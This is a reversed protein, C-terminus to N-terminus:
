QPKKVPTEEVVVEDDDLVKVETGYKNYNRFRIQNRSEFLESRHRSTLRVDSSIPLLYKTGAIEVWDYDIERSAARIPFDEPIETAEQEVRLIRGTERDVWLKGRYGSITSQPILDVSTIVQKSNLCKVAYEYVITRRNRLTDTDIAKFEAQSEPKFISSLVTVFEGASTTGGVKMYNREGKDEPQPAGNIALVRYDEGKDASYSVAVTLKDSSQFNNTKAYAYSRAVLQKVVFDPMEDLAALTAARAKTLLESTEKEAPLATAAPNSRRRAAEELTRALVQDGSKSQVLSRLPETMTFGIGRTRIQEVLWDRRAPNRQLEYLTKVFEAQSVPQQPTTQAPFIPAFVVTLIFVLLLKRM